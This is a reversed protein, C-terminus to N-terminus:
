VTSLCIIRELLKFPKQTPYEGRSTGTQFLNTQKHGKIIQKFKLKNNKIYVRGDKIHQKMTIDSFRWATEPIIGFYERKNNGKNKMFRSEECSQEQERIEDGYTNTFLYNQTGYHLIFSTEPAYNRVKKDVMNLPPIKWVINNIFM